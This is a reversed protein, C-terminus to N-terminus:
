LPSFILRNLKLFSAKKNEKQECSSKTKASFQIFGLLKPKDHLGSLQQHQVADISAVSSHGHEV